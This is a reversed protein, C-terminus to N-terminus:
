INFKEYHRDATNSFHFLFKMNNKQTKTIPSNDGMKKIYIQFYSCARLLNLCAKKNYKKCKNVANVYKVVHEIM